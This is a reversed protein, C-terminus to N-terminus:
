NDRSKLIATSNDILQSKFRDWGMVPLATIRRDELHISCSEVLEAAFLAKLGFDLLCENISEYEISQPRGSIKLKVEFLAVM